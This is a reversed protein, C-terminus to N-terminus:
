EAGGGLGALLARAPAALRAATDADSCVCLLADGSGDPARICLRAEGPVLMLIDDAPPCAAEPGAQVAADLMLFGRRAQQCLADLYERPDSAASSSRLVISAGLDGFAALRCGDASQRLTDLQRALTM